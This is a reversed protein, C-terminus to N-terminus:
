ELHDKWNALVAFPSNPDPPSHIKTGNGKTTRKVVIKRKPKKGSKTKEQRKMKNSKAEENVLSQRESTLRTKLPRWYFKYFTEVEPKELPLSDKVEASENESPSSEQELGNNSEASDVLGAPDNNSSTPRKEREGSKVKYGLGSLLNAFNEPTMGTISLMDPNAEFGDKGNQDLLMKSLRDLMDVRIAWNGARFFGAVSCYDNFQKYGVPITVLGPKPPSPIDDIDRSLAWLIIRIRTAEPKLASFVFIAHQGFRVGHSRLLKRSEQPLSKIEQSIKKRPLIGFSEYIRYAVGRALGTIQEDNNMEILSSCHLSIKQNIYSILRRRIKEISDQGAEADVFVEVDPEYLSKGKVLKGVAYDGWMFGGQDTFGIENDPANYFRLARISLEKSISGLSAQRLTKNEDKSETDDMVFRFGEIKGVSEGEITLQGDSDVNALLSDKRKLHRTLVSVRRDVFRSTLGAHLADSIKDEIYRTKERWYKTDNIWEAKQSLYTWTRVFAMRRSLGEVDGDIRDVKRVQDELWDDPVQGSDQIFFFVKKLLESHDYHSVKRFDPIQCVDWLLRVDLSNSVRDRIEKMDSISRLALLDDADRGWGLLPNQSPAQLTELLTEISQFALRDNRWQLRKLPRFRGSEIDSVVKAELPEVDTTVAFTGPTRFRGARGAIQGIEHPLLSRVRQGDFKVLGAFAVHDIDLNLGMGIADTAVLVEVDGNQYLEVQANRTRPSLAGLVVAAGGRRQRVTEAIAYVDEASFAVIASRPKIRSIKKSGVYNLESLRKRRQFKTEPVLSSIISRMTDSGLFMTELRGRASLLRSTFIHGREPDGCLQIEDIALFDVGTNQPMAEVTCLWYRPNKPIIREEGTVLAVSTAGQTASVRDYVERALLRLPLGIMGSRHALMRKIAYWTKGTNTPGLVAELRSTGSKPKM